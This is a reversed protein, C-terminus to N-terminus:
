APGQFGRGLMAHALPGRAQFPMASGGVLGGPIAPAPAAQAVPPVAPAGQLAAQLPGGAQGAGPVVQPGAQPPMPGAQPPPPATGGQPPRVLAGPPLRLGPPQGFGHLMSLGPPLGMAQGLLGPKPGSTPGGQGPAPRPRSPSPRRSGAPLIM